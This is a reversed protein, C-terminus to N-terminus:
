VNRMYNSWPCDHSNRSRFFDFKSNFITFSVDNYQFNSIEPSSTADMIIDYREGPMIVLSEIVIPEISYGDSAIVTM